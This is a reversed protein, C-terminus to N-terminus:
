DYSNVSERSQEVSEDQCASVDIDTAGNQTKGTHSLETVELLGGLSVPAALDRTILEQALSLSETSLVPLDLLISTDIDDGAVVKSEVILDEVVDLEEAHTGRMTLAYEALYDLLIMSYTTGSLYLLYLRSGRSSYKAMPRPRWFGAESPWDAM